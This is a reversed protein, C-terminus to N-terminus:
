NKHFYRIKFDTPYIHYWLGEKGKLKKLFYDIEEKHYVYSIRKDYGEFFRIDQIFKM